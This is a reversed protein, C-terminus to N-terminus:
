GVQTYKAGDVLTYTFSYAGGGTITESGDFLQSLATGLGTGDPETAPLSAKDPVNPSSVDYQITGRVSGNGVLAQGTNPDAFGAFSGSVDITVSWTGPSAEPTVIFRESLNDYAWVPGGPSDKTAPGGVSTTDPHGASHTVAVTTGTSASAAVAFVVPSALAAVTAASFVLKRINM